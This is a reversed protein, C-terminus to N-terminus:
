ARSPVCLILLSGHEVVVGRAAVAPADPVQAAAAQERAAEGQREGAGRRERGVGVTGHAHAPGRVELARLLERGKPRLLHQAAQVGRGLLLRLHLGDDFRCDAVGIGQALLAALRACSMFSM